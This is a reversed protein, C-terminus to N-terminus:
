DDSVVRAGCNPCYNYLHGTDSRYGCESCNWLWGDIVVRSCTREARTNWAEIAEAKDYETAGEAGCTLCEITHEGTAGYVVIDAEGGCFPCPKLETM